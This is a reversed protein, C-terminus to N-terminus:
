TRTWVGCKFNQQHRENSIQSCTFANGETWRTIGPIWLDFNLTTDPVHIYKVCGRITISWDALNSIGLDFSVSTVPRVHLCSLIRYIQGQPWFDVNFRSLSHVRCMIQHHYMWAGFIIFKVKPDFNLTTDPDHIYAVCRRMTIGWTGFITIWHWVM